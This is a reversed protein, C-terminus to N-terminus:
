WSADASSRRPPDLNFPTALISGTGSGFQGSFDVGIRFVSEGDSVMPQFSVTHSRGQGDSLEWTSADPYAM